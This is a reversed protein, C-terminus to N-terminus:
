VWKLVWRVIWNDISYCFIMLIVILFFWCFIFVVLVSGIIKVVINEWDSKKKLDKEIYEM